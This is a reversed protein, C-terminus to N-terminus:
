YWEGNVHHLRGRERETEELMVTEKMKKEYIQSTIELKQDVMIAQVSSM